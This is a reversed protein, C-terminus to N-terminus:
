RRSLDNLVRLVQETTEGELVAKEKPTVKRLVYAAVEAPERSAPRGIGIAVRVLDSGQLGAGM